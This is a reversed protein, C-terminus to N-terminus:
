LTAPSAFAPTPAGIHTTTGHAAIPRHVSSVPGTKPVPRPRDSRWLRGSRRLHAARRADARNLVDVRARRKRVVARPFHPIPTSCRCLTPLPRLLATPRESWSASTHCRGTRRKAGGAHPGRLSVVARKHECTYLAARLAVTATAYSSRPIHYTHRPTPCLACPDSRSIGVDNNGNELAGTKPVPVSGRM